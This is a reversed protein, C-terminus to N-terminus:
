LRISETDGFDREGVETEPHCIEINSNKACQLFRTNLKLEHKIIKHTKFDRRHSSAKKNNLFQQFDDTEIAINFSTQYIIPKQGKITYKTSSLAYEGSYGESIAIHCAVKKQLKNNKFFYCTSSKESQNMIAFAPSSFSILAFLALAFKPSLKM